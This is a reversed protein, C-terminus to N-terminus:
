FGKFLGTQNRQVNNISTAWCSGNGSRLAALLPMQLPPSPMALSAGKGKLTIKGKGTRSAGLVLSSIGEPLTDSRKYRLATPSAKWCSSRGCTGGAPIRASALLGGAAEDYLCFAYDDGDDVTPNGYAGITAGLFQDSWVLADRVDNLNDKITLKGAGGTCALDSAHAPCPLELLLYESFATVPVTWTNGSASCCAGAPGVGLACTNSATCQAAGCSPADCQRTVLQGNRYVRLDREQVKPNATGDVYGDNDTDPWGFTLTVPQAFAVNEPQLKVIDFVPGQTGVGFESAPLSTISVSMPAGLAGPPFTVTVDGARLTGGGSGITASASKAQDCTDAASSPCPDCVDGGGQADTNRQDPNYACPCNDFSDCVGDGDMDFGGGCPAGGQAYVDWASVYPGFLGQQATGGDWVVAFGGDPTATIASTAAYRTSNSDLSDCHRLLSGNAAYRNSRIRSTASWTVVFSGDALAAVDANGPYSYPSTESDVRFEPGLAVGNSAYRRAYVTSENRRRWVAMFNGVADVAVAPNDTVDAAQSIQFEPGLATGNVDFRRGFVDVRSFSDVSSQWVIVFNGSADQAIDVADVVGFGNQGNVQFPAGFNMSAFVASNNGTTFTAWTTVVNLAGRGIAAATGLSSTPAVVTFESPFLPTGDSLYLRSQIGDTARWFFVLNGSGDTAVTPYHTYAGTPSTNVQFEPALFTGATTFRRALMAEAYTTPDERSWVATVIGSPDAVVAPTVPYSSGLSNLQFEAGATSATVLVLLWCLSLRRTMITEKPGGPEVFARRASM